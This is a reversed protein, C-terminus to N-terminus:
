LKIGHRELMRALEEDFTIKMHHKEQNDIYRVTVELQSVGITFAAYGDQWDFSRNPLHDNIWKSSGGKVLQVAKAVSMSTPLSLLVHAHDPMGGVALAKFKNLRAIGAIYPWLRQQLNAPVLIRREKTSFVCHVLINYYTHSMRQM